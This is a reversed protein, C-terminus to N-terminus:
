APCGALLARRRPRHARRGDRGARAAHARLLEVLDATPVFPDAAVAGDALSLVACLAGDREAVLLPATPVARSDREAVKRLASGDAAVAPRVTISHTPTPTPAVM